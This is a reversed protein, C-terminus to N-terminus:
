PVPELKPIRQREEETPRAWLGDRLIIYADAELAVLISEARALTCGVKRVLARAAASEPDFSRPLRELMQVLGEYIHM